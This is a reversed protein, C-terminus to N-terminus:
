IVAVMNLVDMIVKRGKMTLKYASDTKYCLFPKILRKMRFERVLGLEKLYDIAHCTAQQCNSYSKAYATKTLGPSVYVNLLCKFVFTNRQGYCQPIYPNLVTARIGNLKCAAILVRNIHEDNICVPAVVDNYKKLDNEM